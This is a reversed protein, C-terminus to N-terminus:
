DDRDRLETVRAAQEPTLGLARALAKRPRPGLRRKDAEALSISTQTTEAAIAADEQTWGRARRIEALRLM